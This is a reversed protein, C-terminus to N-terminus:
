DGITVKWPAIRSELRRMLATLTVGALMLTLIPVFM